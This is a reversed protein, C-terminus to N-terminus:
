VVDRVAAPVAASRGSRLRVGAACPGWDQGALLSLLRAQRLVDRNRVPPLGAPAVKIVVEPVPANALWARYTLGSAGGQLQEVGAVAAQPWRVALITEARGALDADGGATVPEPTLAM